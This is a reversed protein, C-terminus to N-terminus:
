FNYVSIYNKKKIKYMPRYFSFIRVLFFYCTDCYYIGNCLYPWLFEWNAIQREVTIYKECARMVRENEAQM